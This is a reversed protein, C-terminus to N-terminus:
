PLPTYYTRNVYRPRFIGLSNRYTYTTYVGPSPGIVTTAPAPSYTTVIPSSYAVVPASYTTVVPASYYSVRPVAYTAVPASYSISPAVVTPTTYYTRVIPAPAFVQPSQVIVVQAQAPAPLVATLTVAALLALGAFKLMRGMLTRRQPHQEYPAM